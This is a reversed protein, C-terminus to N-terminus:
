EEQRELLQKSWEDYANSMNLDDCAKVAEERIVFIEEETVSKEKGYNQKIKYRLVEGDKCVTYRYSIIRYPEDEVSYIITPKSNLVIERRGHCKPCNMEYGKYTVTGVGLCVDCTRKDELRVKRETILFVEQGIEFKNYIQLM